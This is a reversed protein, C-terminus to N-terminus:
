RSNVRVRNELDCWDKVSFIECVAVSVVMTVVSSFYSVSGLSELPLLKLSRSHGKRRIEFDRYSEVYFLDFVTCSLAICNCHRVLITM